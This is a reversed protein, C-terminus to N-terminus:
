PSSTLVLVRRAEAQIREPSWRLVVGEGSRWPALQDHYHPSLPNGSQGGTLAFRCEDWAGVDIVSRLMPLWAQNATPSTFDLGGQAVTSNDGEGALPGLNFVHDLPPKQGFAHVLTLPRVRGWLWTTRDPGHDRRLRRVARALTERLVAHWDGFWGAPQERVLRVLHSLRRTGMTSHPLLATFVRGLAWAAARPAKARVVRDCLEASFLAYVSAGVSGSDLRGDWARLEGQALTCDADGRPDVALVHARMAAWPLSTTDRQLALTTEMDWDDRAGLAQRLAQARYGDLWDVGLYPGDAGNPAPQNNATCVFGEAPDLAHPLADFPVLEGWSTSWGPMPVLGHGAPRTPVEAALVWGVHGGADAYVASVTSTSGARFLERFEAFSRVRHALYLGTYPRTALWSAALSVANARGVLPAGAIAADGGEAASAVIPGRPGVLVRDVVPRGGRVEIAEERVECRVFGDRDRVSTGDPGIEELFFDTNDAHAATVGWAAFGNHGPAFAPLGVWTAGAVELGPARLQALYLLAPLSSVLHPDNALIPRGSRTRSPAVAWANSGGGTGLLDAFAALDRALYDVAGRAPEGREAQPPLPITHPLDAPYPADVAALADPGDEALVKLRVLEVDWNSALAFCFLASYGQVDAPEWKSPRARLIALEHPVPGHDLGANLGRVFAAIQEVVAPEFVGLQAAAARRFGIRRSLRDVPLGEAGVLAALRGRVARVIIELQAAREQAHCFGLAFWADEATRAEIYPVAFDDRRIHVEHHIGRVAATGEYRPTRAGLAVRLFARAIRRSPPLPEDVIV